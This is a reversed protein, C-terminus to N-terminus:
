EGPVVTFKGGDSRGFVEPFYMESAVSPMVLYEGPVSARMLYTYEYTGQPLYTAFLAIKEDRMETHSFWWWGWGNWRYWYDQEEATMDKRLVPQEGVVSTTKLSLDVGECGAPLPDEVVVYYLDDPVVITLKVRIVDGVKASDVYRDPDDVPTYQRAVIIGRDLAKVQEVPLYYRLYAAYYLQGKGTQGEKPALREIVLRNGEEALLQAIEVRLRQGEEIRAKTVDGSGLPEGNLSVTYSFDGELEGSARMYEVLALLSWATDQTTSWRGEDKRAAMLWRVANPLLASKPDLRSMAWVVIATSRIDTNMNRYDPEEEEWHTGTASVIADGVLDALLTKVRAPESPELLGLAMALTAQGYHDLLNRREFLRIALGLEGGAPQKFTTNYDALVYLMYALRNAEDHEKLGSVSPLNNRLYSAGRAMASEDVVFGARHAELMGQLVYATLYPASKDVLWWGWGGDYHQEAYLRQLTTGIMETLKQELEPRALGMEKLVRYTVANPLFRSVLQEVCEYPYHELYALADKTAATLSGDLQVTLEGQTPDFVPPLQVLEQRVGAESLRGATAIVEPTSYRYVPMTGEWGDYREGARAEMRVRVQDGPLATVPWVVRAKDGAPVTVQQSSPGSLSLGEITLNVQVDLPGPTNNHVITAIQAKDGVVFFRPLVPRLLLDLTSLVDVNAQGVLTGATVGRAQMRWTTLNDPLDVQVQAKGERDTRVVPDWFATDAFRTRVLGGEGEGEGGGGGKKGPELDRNFKEMAVVLPTSTRVGLGRNSWFSALLTPGQEDALALVALDALRLSLEAEVPKGEHDTVLVNYTAKERPKYHEGKQMDRDPTLAITLKKSDLSVPLRIEGMKFTALGDPAQASGQVIVVSVFVNPVYEETIPIRLVESNGELGVVQTTMIHGREYTVLAQVPTNYPSPILVKAVDGVQYERKDAILTIRNNSEQRWSVLESGGWVWFYTSSRIEHERSDRGIARVRYTGAKPPTFTAVAKGGEGTTVTTTMVPIDEATWNWFYGGSEDKQRVSYWRHEMFIVTLPVRAVPQSEWGATILDITEEHGVEAVYGRAALGVYFEGQHVVAATRNSVQQGNLDTVSAEITFQQSRGAQDLEAPVQFTVRGQRDTQADGEAILRGYSGFQEGIYGSWEYDTWSYWPCSEGLPCQYTFWYDGSLASWHVKADAVPGGFYYTSESTVNISDGSLYADRDTIVSVQYEPKKYEAVLFSTGAYLNLNPDQVEVFYNGLSAEDDLVLEDHFTGMDNLPLDKSYLEKGETDTVRVHIAQIDPLSYHADDDARVIGKFYVTQGPRYIPRDTYAYARAKSSWYEADLGFEWPSIGQEWGNYAIAFTDEGPQGTMAFFANWMEKTRMGTVLYLGNADTSGNAAVTGPGTYFAVPLGSAPRGTALDTAWILAETHSQKMTLNVKSRVFMFRQYYSLDQSVEPARLQLYYLGPALPRGEADTLNFPELQNQNRPPHVEQSWSKVLDGRSPRFTEWADWGGFGSLNMFSEPSLRYLELDLRSVNRYSVYILTDSYANFSGLNGGSNLVALPDLDGTTFRIHAPNGLTAGYKDPTAADLAIDYSTQPEKPFSIEVITDYESWYTYVDTVPVTPSITLHRTFVDTQMPSAFQIQVAIYVAVNRAGDEPISRGIAPERVVQFSWRDDRALGMTGPMALAGAAVTAQCTSGRSLPASPVLVATEPAAPKVGGQWRFTGAVAQGGCDLSLHEQVSAHDMPQNFTVSIAASPAVYQFDREPKVSWIAPRITTFTWTFDETMIGGTTDNLGAAVRATYETSGQFGEEPRFVYISTNVWEGSGPVAPTFTLPQPLESQRSIATLPVVPRNFVVTVTSDPSVEVSGASPQVQSVTLFGITKLDFAVPEELLKGETNRATAAVSVRYRAGRALSTDANFALTRDDSWAFKGAVPPSISFASEVSARDMPQDFTICIPATLPQEEGPAPTRFLLRPAPLPMPTPKPTGPTCAGLTTVLLVLLALIRSTRKTTRNSM